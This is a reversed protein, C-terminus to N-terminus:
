FQFRVPGQQSGNSIIAEFQRQDPNPHVEVLRFQDINPQSTIRQVDNTEVNKISIVDKGRDKLYSLVVYKSFPGTGTQVPTQANKQPAPTAQPTVPDGPTIPDPADHQNPDQAVVRQPGSVGTPVYGYNAYGVNGRPDTPVGSDTPRSNAANIVIVVPTQPVARNTSEQQVYASSQQGYTSSNDWYQYDPQSDPELYSYNLDDYPYGWYGPWGYQQFFVPRNRRAFFRGRFGGRNFGGRNFGVRNFGGGRFGASNVGRAVFGAHFSRGGGGGRVPGAQSLAAVSLFLGLFLLQIKV